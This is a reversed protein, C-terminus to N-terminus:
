LSLPLLWISCILALLFAGTPAKHSLSSCFWNDTHGSM